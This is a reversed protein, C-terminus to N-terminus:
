KEEMSRLLLQEAEKRAPRMAPDSFRATLSDLEEQVSRSRRIAAQVDLRRDTLSLLVSPKQAAFTAGKSIMEANLDPTTSMGISAIRNKQLAPVIDAGSLKGAPYGDVLALKFRSLELPVEAGSESIGTFPELRSVGTIWTARHGQQQLVTQMARGFAVDDEIVLVERSGMRSFLAKALRGKGTLFLGAGAIAGGIALASETPHNYAAEWLSELGTNKDEASDRELPTRPAQDSMDNQQAM